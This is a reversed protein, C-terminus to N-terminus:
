RWILAKKWFRKKIKAQIIKVSGTSGVGSPIRQYLATTKFRQTQKKIDGLSVNTAILRCGCNIDYGVGGPSIIGGDLDFAPWRGRYPFGMVGISMRAHGSFLKCYGAFARCQGGAERKGDAVYSSFIKKMPM